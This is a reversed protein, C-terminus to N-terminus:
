RTGDWQAARVPNKRLRSPRHSRQTSSSTLGGERGLAGALAGTRGDSSREEPQRDRARRGKLTEMVKDLSFSAPKQRPPYEKFTALFRGV